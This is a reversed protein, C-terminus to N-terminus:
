DPQVGPGPYPELVTDVDRTGEFFSLVRLLVEDLVADPCSAGCTLVVDLPRRDPLWGDTTVPERTELSFHHIRGTSEIEHGGDVFFTPM